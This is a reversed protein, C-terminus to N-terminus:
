ARARPSRNHNQQASQQAILSAAVRDIAQAAECTPSQIMVPMGIRAAAPVHQDLPVTGGAAIELGLFRRCSQDIRQHVTQAMESDTTQNVIARIPVTQGRPLLAKITAYADMISVTDPTTVLRVHDAAWWFRGAVAGSGTGVDLLVMDAHPGLVKLDHLLRQQAFESCDTVRGPAWSGPLVQIGGPGSELVEHISRRAALIDALSYREELQCLTAVDPRDLNADVLVVRQGQGALAVSLNVALTTTGVGGKGGALVVLWPVPGGVATARRASKLVLNRLEDAQDRM